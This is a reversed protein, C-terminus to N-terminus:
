RFEPTAAKNRGPVNLRTQRRSSPQLMKSTATAVTLGKAIVLPPFEIFLASLFPSAAAKSV